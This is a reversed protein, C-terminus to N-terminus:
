LLAKAYKRLPRARKWYPANGTPLCALCPANLAIERLANWSIERLQPMGFWKRRPRRVFEPKWLHSPYPPPPPLSPRPKCPLPGRPLCHGGM